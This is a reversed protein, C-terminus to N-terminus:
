KPAPAYGKQIIIQQGEPSKIWDIYAKVHGTPEGATYLYLPRAIPYAGSTATEVTPAVFPGAKTKGIKAMKLHETAYALGSYGIACPTKEILDVVDKSGHLDRTGLKYDRKGGLVIKKFTAYTGSNNQRSILVIEDSECGAMRIDLQSWKTTQGGEGYMEALEPLTFEDRPNDKHIYIALADKGVIHQVPNIGKSKALAIEKPKMPRSSNAIDVTGNLLAAIGTGSGGGSVAVAVKSEVKGYAEAWALAVNVLTDSGKNQIVTRGDSSKGGCGGGFAFALVVAVVALNRM